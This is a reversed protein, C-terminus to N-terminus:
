DVCPIISLVPTKLIKVEDTEEEPDDQLSM